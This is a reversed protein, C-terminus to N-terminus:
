WRAGRRALVAQTRPRRGGAHAPARRDAAARGRAAAGRRRPSWGTSWCSRQRDPVDPSRGPRTRPRRRRPTSTCPGAWRADAGRVAAPRLRQRRQPARTTSARPRRRSRTSADSVACARLEGVRRPVRAPHGRHAALGRARRRPARRAGSPSGTPSWGPSCRPPPTSARRLGARRRPQPLEARRARRAAARDGRGIDVVIGDADLEAGRFTADVVYTAGHLRQAPGFVEGRFSHAIMMHDRVTVRFMPETRRRRLHDLPVAGPLTATPSGRGDGDPLEAFPSRAPSCPTSRRTGCCTWPSRSGTPPRAAPGGPRPSRAWRAPASPWGARLPLRRGAALEVARDGYWSLDLVTGEPASCTSRASCAPRRDRQRARGPRLRRTRRAPAAFDVGSRPPSTRGPGPRHRRPDGRRRPHRRAAPGRLLRGHGRRRGRGPRRGAAGRGVARQGRDRRDRRAGGAGAARRRARRTM